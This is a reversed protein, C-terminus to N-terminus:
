LHSVRYFVVACIGLTFTLALVRYLWLLRTAVVDSRAWAPTSCLWAASCRKWAGADGKEKGPPRRLESWPNGDREWQDHHDRYELQIVQDFAINAAIAVLIVSVLYGVILHSPM